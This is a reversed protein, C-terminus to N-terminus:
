PVFAQHEAFGPESKFCVLALDQWAAAETVREPHIGPGARSM